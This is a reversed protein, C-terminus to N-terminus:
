SKGGLRRDLWVRLVGVAILTTGIIYGVRMGLPAGAAATRVILSIGVAILFASLVRAVASRAPTQPPRSAPTM